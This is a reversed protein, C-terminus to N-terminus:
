FFPFFFGEVQTVDENQTSKVKKKKKRWEGAMPWEWVDMMLWLPVHPGKERKNSCLLCRASSPTPIFRLLLFSSLVTKVGVEPYNLISAPSACLRIRPVASLHLLISCISLFQLLLRVMQWISKFGRSLHCDHQNKCSHMVTWLVRHTIQRIQTQKLCSQKSRTGLRSNLM